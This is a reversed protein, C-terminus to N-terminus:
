PTERYSLTLMMSRGPLPQQLLDESTMDNLLNDLRYILSWGRYLRFRISANLRLRPDLFQTESMNIPLKTRYTVEVEADWIADRWGLNGRVQHRSTTPMMYGDSTKADVFSYQAELFLGRWVKSALTAEFGRSTVSSLNRAEYLYPTIPLFRILHDYFHYFGSLKLGLYAGVHIGIGVENLYSRQSKLDDNGRIFETRYYQENYSPYRGATATSGWIELFELPRYSLGLHASFIPTKEIRYDGRVAIAARFRDEFFSTSESLSLHLQHGSRVHTTSANSLLTETDLHQAEYGLEFTTIGWSGTFFDAKADIFTQNERYVDHTPHGGIFSTPNDYTDGSARHSISMQLLMQAEGTTIPDFVAKLQSLSLWLEQTAYRSRAPYESLGAEERSIHSFLSFASLTLRDLTWSANLQAGFRAAAHHVRHQLTGQDDIYAFEGPSHAGFFTADLVAHNWAYGGHGFVHFDRMSGISAQAAFADNPEHSQLEILGGDAGSTIGAGSSSIAARDVLGEPILSLDASADSMANIEIGHYRVVIDQAAAGRYAISARQLANGREAAQVSAIRSLTRSLSEGTAIQVANEHANRADFTEGTQEGDIEIAELELPVDAYADFSSLM